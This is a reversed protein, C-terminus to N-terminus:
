CVAYVVSVEGESVVVEPLGHCRSTRFVASATRGGSDARIEFSQVGGYDDALRSFEFAEVETGADLDYTAEHVVRGTDRHTVTVAVTRPITAENRVRLV